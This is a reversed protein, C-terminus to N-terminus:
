DELSYTITTVVRVKKRQPTYANLDSVEFQGQYATIIKGIKSDSDAAFKNAAERAAQTAEAIMEPKISNLGTFEFQTPNSYDDSDLSINSRLLQGQSSILESVAAVNKSEVVIVQKLLYRNAPRDNGYNYSWRDTLAPALISIENEAVGGKTVFDKIVANKTALEADLQALDNGVVSYVIPWTVRDADVVREALGRVDVQRNRSSISNLGSKVGWGITFLGVALIVASIIIKPTTKM